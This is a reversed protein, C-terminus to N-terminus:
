INNLLYKQLASNTVMNNGNNGFRRINRYDISFFSPYLYDRAPTTHHPHCSVPLHM